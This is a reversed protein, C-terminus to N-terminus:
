KMQWPSFVDPKTEINFKNKNGQIIAAAARLGAFTSKDTGTRSVQYLNHFENVNEYLEARSQDSKYDEWSAAPDAGACKIVRSYTIYEPKLIGAESAENIARELITVDEQQMFGDGIMCFFEVCLCGKGAPVMSGLFAGYNTIRSIALNPDSVQISTHPFPAPKSLFLYVLVVSRQFSLGSLPLTSEIDLLKAIAQIPLCSIVSGAEYSAVAGNTKVQVSTIHNGTFLINEVNQLYLINGGMQRIEKELVESIQGTGKAPHYWTTQKNENKSAQQFFHKLFNKGSDNASEPAKLEAWQRGKLREDFHQSFIRTFKEGRTSYAFDQLSTIQRSHYKYYNKVLDFFSTFLLHLPMGRRLGRYKKDKELIYNKYLVGTRPVYQIFDDGLLSQWLEHVEAIRSYLHKYGFDVTYDEYKVAQMLGGVNNRQELITVSYKQKLLAHAAALGGPGAGLVLVDTKM